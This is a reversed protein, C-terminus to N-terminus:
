AVGCRRVHVGPRRPHHRSRYRNRIEEKRAFAELDRAKVTARENTEAADRESSDANNSMILRGNRRSLSVAADSSLATVKIRFLAVTGTLGAVQSPSAERQEDM